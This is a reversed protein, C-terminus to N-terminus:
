LKIIKKQSQKLDAAISKSELSRSKQMKLNSSKFFSTGIIM